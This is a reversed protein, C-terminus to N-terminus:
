ACHQDIECTYFCLRFTSNADINVLKKIIKNCSNLELGYQEIEVGITLKLDEWLCWIMVDEELAGDSDVKILLSTLYNM